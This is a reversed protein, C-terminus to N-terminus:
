RCGRVCYGARDFEMTLGSMPVYVPIRNRVLLGAFQATRTGPNVRGGTAAEENMHLPIVARPKILESVAFAAEEPGMKTGSEDFNVVALQAHYFRNVVTEMESTIGTDGSLYVRLGNSFTLVYGTSLGVSAPLGNGVLEARLPDILLSPNVNNDHHAPVIAIQVGAIGGSLTVTRKGGFDLNATCPSSRPVAILGAAAPCAPTPVRRVNQIKGAIFTAMHRAVVVASNKAVAIEALNTNPAATFPATGRQAAGTLGSCLAGGADPDQDLKPDGIHDLHAHSLIIAHVDGLRRDTGGATTFGPDYLITVGTPDEFMLTRDLECFDGTRSGLSTIRVTQGDALSPGLFLALTLIWLVNTRKM